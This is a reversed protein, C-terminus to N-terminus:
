KWEFMGDCFCVEKVEEEVEAEGGDGGSKVLKGEGNVLRGTGREDTTVDDLVAKVAEAPPSPCPLMINPCFPRCLNEDM